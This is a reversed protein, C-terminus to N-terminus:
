DKGKNSSLITAPNAKKLATVLRAIAANDDKSADNQIATIATPTKAITNEGKLAKNSAWTIMQLIILM